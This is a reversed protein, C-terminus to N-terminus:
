AKIDNDTAKKPIGLLSVIMLQSIIFLILWFFAQEMFGYSHLGIGLMNVGFWSFSTVINGLIAMGMLGRTQIWGSLRFHLIMANWLVILLAGNEKPDWGWFRGWSQDGWIGGLVTGIFSLLLAFCVTGFVMRYYEKEMVAAKAANILRHFTYVIAIFGAIYTGSYGLTITIVHTSLWFNSDLVARMNELTDGQLSLHHAIILTLFGVIGAVLLGLRNKFYRELLLALAVGGWGVFVASSYLNTVPPRDQVLMRIILGLSHFGFTATILWVAASYLAKKWILWSGILLLIGFGYIVVLKYFMDWDYFMAEQKSQKLLKPFTDNYYTHINNVDALFQPSQQQASTLAAAYLTTLKPVPKNAIRDTLGDSISGWEIGVNVNASVQRPIVNVISVSNTYRVKSVVRNLDLLTKKQDISLGKFSKLNILPESKILIKDLDKMFKTYNTIDEYFFSNKLKHYTMVSNYFQIIAAQFSSREESDIVAAKAALEEIQALKPTITKYSFYHSKQKPYGLFDKVQPHNTM